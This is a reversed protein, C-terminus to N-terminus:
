TGGRRYGRLRGKLTAAHYRARPPDCRALGLAAGVLPRAAMRALTGAPFRHKRLLYGVTAGDRRGLTRLQEPSPDRLPHWVVLSPDYDIWAGAAIARLLYDIEEGAGTATGAGLGLREDFPGIREIVSRRLFMTASCAANWVNDRSIRFGGTPWSPSSGGDREATRGTVGMLGATTGLTSAIRELLDPPYECDDDPFGVVDGAVHPLAANRARSLGRPAQVRSTRLSSFGALEAVVRDDANQDVVVVDFDSHTQVALSELLPRLEAARDVTAVVLTFSLGAAAM